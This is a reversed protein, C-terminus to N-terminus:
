DVLSATHGARMARQGIGNCDGAGGWTQRVQFSVAAYKDMSAMVDSTMMYGSSDMNAYVPRPRRAHRRQFLLRRKALCWTLAHTSEESEDVAVVIRRGPAEAAAAAHDATAGDDPVSWAM